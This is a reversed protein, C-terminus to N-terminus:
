AEEDYIILLTIRGVSEDAAAERLETIADHLLDQDHRGAADKALSILYFRNGPPLTGVFDRVRERTTQQAPGTDTESM